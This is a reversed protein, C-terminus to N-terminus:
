ANKAKSGALKKILAFRDVKGTPTLPLSELQYFHAPVKWQPLITRLESRLAEARLTKGPWMVVFAILANTEPLPEAIM